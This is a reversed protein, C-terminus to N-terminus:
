QLRTRTRPQPVAEGGRHRAGGEQVRAHSQHHQWTSSLVDTQDPDSLDQCDPLLAEEAVTLVPLSLLM